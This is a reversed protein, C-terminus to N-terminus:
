PRGEGTPRGQRRDPEDPDPRREVLAAIGDIVRALGFDFARAPDAAAEYEEGAAAGVRAAVPYREPDFVRELLPAYEAWWQEGSRGTRREAHEADVASRAAGNVYDLVLTVVQDMEIDTLGLGDVARLEDDYKAILNPGLVPRVTAVQLVWPHRRLLAWNERALRELRGRWGATAASGGAAADAASGGAAADAATGDTAGPAGDGRGIEGHVRDLMVDVLEAKGPFYTYLSMATVGLEDALRRMSVAALGEADALGIAARAIGDVTLKPRPGRRTGSRETGWLLEMSRAPDGGGGYESTV